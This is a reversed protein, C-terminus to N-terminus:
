ADLLIPTGGNWDEECEFAPFNDEFIDDRTVVAINRSPVWLKYHSNELCAIIVGMDSKADLKKRLERPIHRWGLCVFVRLHSVSQKTGIMLEHSNITKDRPCLFINRIHNAHVVAEAWFMRPLTSRELM